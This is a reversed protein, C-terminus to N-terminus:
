EPVMEESDKDEEMITLELVAVVPPMAAPSPTITSSTAADGVNDDDDEEDIDDEYKDEGMRDLGTETAIEM